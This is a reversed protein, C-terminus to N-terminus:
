ITLNLPKQNIGLRKAAYPFRALNFRWDRYIAVGNGLSVVGPQHAKVLLHQSM